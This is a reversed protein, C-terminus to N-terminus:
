YEDEDSLMESDEADDLVESDEEDDVDGDASKTRCCCTNTYVPTIGLEELTFVCLETEDDDKTVLVTVLQRLMDTEKVRGKGKPTDITDSIKPMFKATQAYYDNEHKLCCMLRGCLGSIKSPNLPLGQQKAMKISVRAFNNRWVNCCCVRGCPGLGGKMKCEERIGIQRLEVRNHFTSALEKVLARFDVRNDATFYFVIKSNDFAFEVDAFKIKLKRKDAILQATRITAHRKNLISNHREIDKETAKRVVSKLEGKIKSEDIECNALVVTVYELGRSTNVIAGDGVSFTLNNPDFYYVKGAPKYQVGIINPM